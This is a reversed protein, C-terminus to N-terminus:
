VCVCLELRDLQPFFLLMIIIIGLLMENGIIYITLVVVTGLMMWFSTPFLTVM